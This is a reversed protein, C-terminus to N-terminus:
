WCSRPEGHSGRMGGERQLVKFVSASALASVRIALSLRTKIAHSRIVKLLDINM